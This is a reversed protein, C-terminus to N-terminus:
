AQTVAPTPAPAPTALPTSEEEESEDESSDEDDEEGELVEEEEDEEFTNLPVSYLRVTAKNPDKMLVYKGDEQKMMLECIMKVIGWMNQTSLNIQQSLDKPKFVQTALITHEYANSRSLRSVYGVRMLDAGALVSQATWKALKCSNNKLETALVAGRQSDIKRRWDIGGSYRSDWENLAYTTFNLKDKGKAAWGHLECRAIVKINGLTFKRYRYAVSAPESSGDEEEDEDFFPHAEFSQRTEPNETKVDKLIQQSFNQNIATAELSLKEPHNIEETDESSNPPDHATESVTLFDFTSNERKDMFIVGCRKVIVIDWSFVSRTSSMLLALIADTAYVNGAEEMAYKEIISDDSTSVYYFLRNEIRQLPRASKTDIRDYTDDYQDLHGAWVLDEITPNNAQLKILQPLDFEEVVVWDGQVTLSPQRDAKRDYRSRGRGAFRGGVKGGRGGGRGGFIGRGAGRDGGM